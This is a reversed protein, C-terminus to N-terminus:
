YLKGAFATLFCDIVVFLLRSGMWMSVSLDGFFNDAMANNKYDLGDWLISSIMNAYFPFFSISSFNILFEGRMLGNCVKVEISCYQM